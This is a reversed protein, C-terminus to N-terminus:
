GLAVAMQANKVAGIPRGNERNVYLESLTRELHRNTSESTAGLTPSFEAPWDHSLGRIVPGPIKALLMIPSSKTLFGSERIRRNTHKLERIKKEWQEISDQGGPVVGDAKLARRWMAMVDSWQLDRLRMVGPFARYGCPNSCSCRYSRPGKYGETVKCWGQREYAAKKLNAINVTQRDPVRVLM